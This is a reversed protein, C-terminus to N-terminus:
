IINGFDSQITKVAFGGVSKKIQNNKKAEDVRSLTKFLMDRDLRKLVIKAQKESLEYVKTLKEFDSLEKLNEELSREKDTIESFDELKTSILEDNSKNEIDVNLAIVERGWKIKKYSFKIDTLENIERKATKLVRDNFHGFQKYKEEGTGPNIYGLEEKLKKLDKSEITQRIYGKKPRYQCLYMYIIKSHKSKLRLMSFLQHKTYSQTLDLLYPKLKKSILVEVTGKGKLFDAEHLLGTVLVGKERDITFQIDRLREAAAIYDSLNYNKGTLRELEKMNLHYTTDDKHSKSLKAFLFFTIELEIEKLNEQRLAESLQEHVRVQKNLLSINAM